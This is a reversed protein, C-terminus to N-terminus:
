AGGLSERDLITARRAPGRGGRRKQQGEGAAPSGAATEARLEALTPKAAQRQPGGVVSKEVSAISEYMPEFSTSGGAGRVEKYGTLKLPRGQADLTTEKIGHDRMYAKRAINWGLTGEAYNGYNRGKSQGKMGSM